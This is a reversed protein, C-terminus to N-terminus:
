KKKFEAEIILNVRDSVAPVYAGLMFDSRRLAGHASFGLTPQHDIPDTGAANLTAELVVLKTIGHLTLDGVIRGSHDTLREVRRATFHAQPYKRIDFFDKSEFKADMVDNNSDASGTEITVDLKSKEPHAADFQLTADFHNFRVYYTSFGLHDYNFLLTAHQKDLEYTGSPMDQLPPAAGAPLAFLAMLSLLLCRYMPNGRAGM